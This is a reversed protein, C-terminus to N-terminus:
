GKKIEITKELKAAGSRKAATVRLVGNEYRAEITSEDVGEPLRLSREFSGFSRESLYYDEKKVEHDQRKEGKITLIDDSLTVSLDKEDVGPLEAEVSLLNDNEHVDLSATVIDNASANRFISPWGRELREFVRDMEDHLVDLVGIRGPISRVSGCV